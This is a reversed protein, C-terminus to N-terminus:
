IVQRQYEKRDEATMIPRIWKGNDKKIIIYDRYKEKLM